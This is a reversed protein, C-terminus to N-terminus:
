RATSEWRVCGQSMPTACNAKISALAQRFRSSFHGVMLVFCRGVYSDGALVGWITPKTVGCKRSAARGGNRGCRMARAHGAATDDPCLAGGRRAAIPVFGAIGGATALDTFSRASHRAITIGVCGAERQFVPADRCAAHRGITAADRRAIASVDTPPGLQGIAPKASGACEHM